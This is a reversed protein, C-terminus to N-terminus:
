ADFMVEFISIENIHCYKLASKIKSHYKYEHEICFVKADVHNLFLIFIGLFLLDM